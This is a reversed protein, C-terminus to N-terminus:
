PHRRHLLEARVSEITLKIQASDALKAKASLQDVDNPQVSHRFLCGTQVYETEMLNLRHLSSNPESLLRGFYDVGYKIFSVAVSSRLDLRAWENCKVKGLSAVETFLAFQVQSPSLARLTQSTDFLNHNQPSARDEAIDQFDDTIQLLALYEKLFRDVQMKNPADAPVLLLPTFVFWCKELVSNIPSVLSFYRKGSEIIRLSDDILQPDLHNRELIAKCRDLAATCDSRLAAETSSSCFNDFVYDDLVIYTRLVVLFEDLDNFHRFSEPFSERLFEGYLEGLLKGRGRQHEPTPIRLAREM